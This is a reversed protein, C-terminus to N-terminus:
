ASFNVAKSISANDCVIDAGTTVDATIVAAALGTVHKLVRLESDSLDRAKDGACAVMGIVAGDGDRLPMSAYLGLPQTMASRPRGLQKLDIGPHSAAWNKDCSVAIQEIHGANASTDNCSGNYVTITVVPTALLRAGMNALQDLDQKVSICRNM